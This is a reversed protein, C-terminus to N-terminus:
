VTLFQTPLRATFLLRRGLASLRSRWRTTRMHRCMGQTSSVALASATQRWGPPLPPPLCREVAATSTGRSLWSPPLWVWTLRPAIGCSPSRPSLVASDDAQLRGLSALLPGPLALSAILCGMRHLACVPMYHGQFCFLCVFLVFFQSHSSVAFSAQEGSWDDDDVTSAAATYRRSLFVSVLELPAAFLHLTALM